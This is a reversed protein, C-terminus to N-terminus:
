KNLGAKTKLRDLAAIMEARLDDDVIGNSDLGAVFDFAGDARNYADRNRIKVDSWTNEEDKIFTLLRAVLDKKSWNAAEMRDKAADAVAQWAEVTEVTAPWYSVGRFKFTPAPTEVEPDLFWVKLSRELTWIGHRSRDMTKVMQAAIEGLDYVKEDEDSDLNVPVNKRATM